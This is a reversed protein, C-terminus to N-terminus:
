ELIGLLYKGAESKDFKETFDLNTEPHMQLKISAFAEDINKVIISESLHLLEGLGAKDYGIVTTGVLVSEHAIRNWGENIGTLALTYESGAMYSLFEDFSGQYKISYFAEQKEAMSDNTSFYCAYGAQTLKKALEFVSADNKKLYQGLHIRKEKKVSRFKKYYANDFFNPFLCVANKNNIKEEFYKQWYAAVAIIKVNKFHIHRLLFFLISFYLKLLRSKGDKEDYNHLVIFVQNSSFINRIIAMLALRGVVININKNARFFSSLFLSVHPLVGVFSRGQRDITLETDYGKNQFFRNVEDSFFSEHRFGGTKYKGHSLYAITFPM